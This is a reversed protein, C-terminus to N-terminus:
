QRNEKQNNILHKKIISIIEQHIIGNSIIAGNIDKDYKQVNGFLDTVKGGAEEVIIKAAAIDCNKHKTGPFLALTFNGKAVETSAKAISGISIFYSNEGLEKIIDYINYESNPWMDYHSISRKDNLKLNNVEIKKDNQYAGQGKIAHYMNDMFPDYIVGIIPEGNEVLALSFVSNYIQRAYLATGDIPDCVWVLNSKGNSEEEGDVSHTGFKERVENILYKNIEKDAITVITNDEKYNSDNFQNFYKIMIEGAKYAIDKAFQLYVQEM